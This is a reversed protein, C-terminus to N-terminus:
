EQPVRIPPTTLIPAQVRHLLKLFPNRTPKFTRSLRISGDTGKVAVAPEGEPKEWRYQFSYHYGPIMKEGHVTMSGDPRSEVIQGDPSEQPKAVRGIDRESM